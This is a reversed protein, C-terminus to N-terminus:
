SSHKKAIVTLPTQLLISLDFLFNWNYIYYTDYEVEQDFHLDSRGKIQAYGTIGPKINLVKYQHTLYKKVERPQHARPGVLSLNGIIVNFLQPLEDLSYKELFRGLKTARPDNKIKYLAGRDALEGQEKILNFEYELAKKSNPNNESVNFETKFRRFKYMKFVKGNPGVRESSYFVSGKSTLKIAFAIITLLPSLMILLISACFLDFFRKLIVNWGDIPSYIVEFYYKKNLLIPRFNYLKAKSLMEPTILLRVKYKECLILLEEFLSESETSSVFIESLTYSEILKTLSKINGKGLKEIKIVQNIDSRLSIKNVLSNPLSGVIAVQSQFFGLNYLLKEFVWFLLRFIIIVSFSIFGVTAIIFRSVRIEKFQFNPNFENFYLFSILFLLVLLISVVFNAIVQIPRPKYTIRYQGLSILILLVLVSLFISSQLYQIGYIQKVGFFNEEFWSYRILYAVGASILIAVFDVVPLLATKWIEITRSKTLM